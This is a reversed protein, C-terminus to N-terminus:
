QINLVQKIKNLEQELATMRQDLQQLINNIKLLNISAEVSKGKSIPIDMEEIREKGTKVNVILVKGKVM